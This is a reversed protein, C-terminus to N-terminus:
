LFGIPSDAPPRRMIEPGPAAAQVDEPEVEPLHLVKSASCTLCRVVRGASRRGVSPHSVDPRPDTCGDAHQLSEVEGPLTEGPLAVPREGVLGHALQDADFRAGSDVARAISPLFGAADDREADRTSPLPPTPGDGTREHASRWAERWQRQAFRAAAEVRWATLAAALDANDVAQQLEGLADDRQADLDADVQPGRTCLDADYAAQQEALEATRREQRALEQRALEAAAAAGKAALARLKDLDLDAATPATTATTM